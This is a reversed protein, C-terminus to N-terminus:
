AVAGSTLATVNLPGWATAGGVARVASVLTDGNADQQAIMILDDVAALSLLPGIAPETWSPAALSAGDALRLAAITSNGNQDASPFFVAGHSSVMPLISTDSPDPRQVKYPFGNPNAIEAGTFLNLAYVTNNACGILRDGAVLLPQNSQQVGYTGTFTWAPNPGQFSNLPM